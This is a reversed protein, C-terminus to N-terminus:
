FLFRLGFQSGMAQYREVAYGPVAAPTDLSVYYNGEVFFSSYRSLATQVGFKTVASGNEGELRNTLKYSYDAGVYASSISRPTFYLSLGTASFITPSGANGGFSGSGNMGMQLVLRETMFRGVGFALQLNGPSDGGSPSLQKSFNGSISMQVAGARGVQRDSSTSQASAPALSAAMLVCSLPVVTIVKKFM